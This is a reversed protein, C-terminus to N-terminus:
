RQPGSPTLHTLLRMRTPQPEPDDLGPLRTPEGLALEPLEQGLVLRDPLVQVATERVRRDGLDLDLALWLLDHDGHVRRPRTHHDPLTAGLHVLQTVLERMERLALDRDVDLLDLPRLQVRLEDSVVDRVLERLPDRETARHLSGHLRGHPGTGLPDLDLGAAPQTPRLDGAGLAVM